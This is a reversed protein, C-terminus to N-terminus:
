QRICTMQATSYYPYMVGNYALQGSSTCTFSLVNGSLIGTGFVTTTHGAPDSASISEFYVNNGNIEGDTSFYGSTKVRNKSVKTIILVGTDTLSGSDNGWTVHEVTSVNYVGVFADANGEKTCSTAIVKQITGDKGYFAVMSLAQTM